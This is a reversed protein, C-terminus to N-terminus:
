MEKEASSVAKLEGSTVIHDGATDFPEVTLLSESEDHAVFFPLIDEDMVGVDFTDPKSAELVAFEHIELQDLRVLPRLSV